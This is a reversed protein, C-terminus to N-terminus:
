REGGDKRATLRDICKALAIATKTMDFFRLEGFEGKAVELTKREGDTLRMSEIAASYGAKFGDRKDFNIQDSEYPRGSPTPKVEVYRAYEDALKDMEASQSM